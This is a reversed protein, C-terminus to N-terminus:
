QGQASIRDAVSVHTLQQPHPPASRCRASTGGRWAGGPAAHHALARGRVRHPWPYQLEQGGSTVLRVDTLSCQVQHGDVRTWPLQSRVRLSGPRPVRLAAPLGKTIQSSQDLDTIM